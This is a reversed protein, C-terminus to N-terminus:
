GVFSANVYDIAKDLTFGEKADDSLYRGDLTTIHWEQWTDQKSAKLNRSRAVRRLRQELSEMTGAYDEIQPCTSTKM